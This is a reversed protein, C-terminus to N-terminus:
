GLGGLIKNKPTTSVFDKLYFPEFYAVDKFDQMQFLEQSLEIMDKASPYIGSIFRANAHTIISACKDSGNGFFYVINNLLLDNFSNEDIIEATTESEFEGHKNFFATYVELRRADLMPCYLADDLVIQGNKKLQQQLFGMAMFQLTPLAILPINAGYCLGKAVSVGIRLGTYSGPGMSVAIAQLNSVETKNKRLIEDVFVSLISAHSRVEASERFDIIGNENALAVSCVDTSSEIHLILAM